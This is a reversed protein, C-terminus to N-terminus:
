DFQRSMELLFLRRLADYGRENPDEINDFYWWHPDDKRYHKSHQDACAVGAAVTMDAFHWNGLNRYLANPADLGCFYLDCLGDGDVDGAAVGSGNLFIQNTLAREEGLRNTFAIGAAAADTETFGDKGDAAISLTARRYGPQQQWDLAAASRGASLALAILCSRRLFRPFM